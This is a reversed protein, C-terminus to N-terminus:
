KYIRNRSLVVFIPIVARRKVSISYLCHSQPVTPIVARLKVTITTTGLDHLTERNTFPADRESEKCYSVTRIITSVAPVVKVHHTIAKLWDRRENVGGFVLRWRERM